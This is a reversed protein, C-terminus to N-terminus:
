VPTSFTSVSITILAPFNVVSAKALEHINWPIFSSARQWLRRIACAESIRCMLLGCQRRLGYHTHALRRFYKLSVIYKLEQECNCTLESM